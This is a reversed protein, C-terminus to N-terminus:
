AGQMLDLVAEELDASGRRVEEIDAGGEVLARVVPAGSTGDSLSVSIHDGDEAVKCVGALQALQALLPETWGRGRIELDGGRAASRIEAPSGTVVSIGHSLVCVTDCLREAEALNHTTLVLTTGETKVLGLLDARLGAAAAPDLGATPEDLFALEPRHLLARAIALKQKMGRSWTGAAEQRRDWLGMAMLLERMRPHRTAPPLRYIRGYYELNDWASLREYLGTHELLAGSRSRIDDGGSTVDYGLVRASGASPPILGLLLRITTTKGAGNHGLLGFVSGRPVSLTLAHVARRDGFSRSLKETQIAANM